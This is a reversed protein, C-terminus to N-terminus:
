TWQKSALFVVVILYIQKIMQFVTMMEGVICWLGFRLDNELNDGFVMEQISRPNWYIEQILKLDIMKNLVYFPSLRLHFNIKSFDFYIVWDIGEPKLWKCGWSEILFVYSHMKLGFHLSSSM